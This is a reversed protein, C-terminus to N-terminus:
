RVIIKKGNRVYIGSPLAPLSAANKSVAVRQGHLNYWAEDSPANPRLPSIGSATAEFAKGHITVDSICITKGTAAGMYWPYIRVRLTDGEHLSVMPTVSAELMNNAPMKAPSFFTRPNAFDPDVSYSVHCQMGNGGCGCIYMGISDIKLTTGASPIIGFQIYRTSVEDIEGGPWADGVILNRQTKRSADFVTTEPWVASKGPSSYRQVYMGELSQSLVNAPGILEYTDNSELRWYANVETGGEMSVTAAKVPISIIKEGHQVTVTGNFTEENGLVVQAYFNTVTAGDTYDITATTGWTTKDASVKIGKDASIKITGESPTLSFANISFEKTLVQGQYGEGMDADGPSVNLDSPIEIFDSLIDSQKLLAAAERAILTAGVASLHTSGKGDGLLLHCKEDGYSLYLNATATTLDIFPVNMETAVQQMQYVYDMTQNDSPLSQKEQLGADTLKSFNDGLDHYGSRRIKNNSFYMRCIPGVLIPNCGAERTETVYKRLYQKYTDFPTTGRYDVAAAKDAQGVSEYYAKLSDGDTGATKEDNHSFQILVYDGATMQTKVSKWYAPEKYFSKSSAGAKGRNNVVIDNTFFQQFYQGWGRTNTSNEDYTQMTSDGITHVKIPGAFVMGAMALASVLSVVYNKKM